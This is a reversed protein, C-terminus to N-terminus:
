LLRAAPCSYQAALVVVGFAVRALGGFEHDFMEWGVQVCCHRERSVGFDLHGHSHSFHEGVVFHDHDVFFYAASRGLGGRSTVV